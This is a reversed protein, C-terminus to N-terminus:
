MKMWFILIGPNCIFANAGQGRLVYFSHYEDEKKLIHTGPNCTFTNADRVEVCLHLSLIV